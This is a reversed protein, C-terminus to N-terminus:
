RPFPHPLLLVNLVLAGEAMIHKDDKSYFSQIAAAQLVRCLYGVHKAM